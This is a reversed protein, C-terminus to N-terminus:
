DMRLQARVQDQHMVYEIPPHDERNFLEELCWCNWIKTAMAEFKAILQGMQCAAFKSKRDANDFCPVLQRGSNNIRGRFHDEFVMKIKTNPVSQENELGGQVDLM